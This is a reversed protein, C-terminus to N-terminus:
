GAPIMDTMGNSIAWQNIGQNVTNTMLNALAPSDTVADVNGEVTMNIAMPAHEHTMVIGVSLIDALRDISKDFAGVAKTFNDSNLTYSTSAGQGRAEERQQFASILKEVAQTTNKNSTLIGRLLDGSNGLEAGAGAKGVPGGKHFYSGSRAMSGSSMSNINKLANVGVADVASKRVVFEGPTLMAPVTDTGKPSFVSGGSAFGQIQELTVGNLGFNGYDNAGTFMDAQGGTKNFEIEITKKFKSNLNDVINAESGILKGGSHFDGRAVDAGIRGDAVGDDWMKNISKQYKKLRANHIVKNYKAVAATKVEGVM